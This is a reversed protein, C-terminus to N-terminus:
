PNERLRALSNIRNQVIKAENINDMLKEELEEEADM